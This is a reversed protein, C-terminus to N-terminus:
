RSEVGAGGTFVVYHYCFFRFATGLAFGVVYASINDALPGTLQLIHHTFLLCFQTILIGGANAFAFLLAERATNERTRGRYTWSRNAVWSFCTAVCASIVNATNPHGALVGMPGHQLLNFLGSDIVYALAGVLGFQTLEQLWALLRAMLTAPAGTGAAPAAALRRTEQGPSPTKSGIGAPAAGDPVQVSAGMDAAVGEPRM